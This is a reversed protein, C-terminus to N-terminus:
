NVRNETEHVNNDSFVFLLARLKGTGREQSLMLCCKCTTPKSQILQLLLGQLKKVDERLGQLDQIQQQQDKELKM